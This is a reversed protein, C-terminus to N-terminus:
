GRRRRLLVYFAGAGGDRQRAPVCALVRSRVAAHNLWRPIERRLVSEGGARGKGTIVLVCRLGRDAARNLFGLLADEAAQRTLGHLDLRAEIPLQGRRLREATRRDIGALSGVEIPAPGSAGAAAAAAQRRAQKRSAAPTEHPTDTRKEGAEDTGAPPVPEEATAADDRHLPTVDRTMARWLDREAQTPRRGGANRERGDAM